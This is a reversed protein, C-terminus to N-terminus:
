MVAFMGFVGGCCRYLVDCEETVASCMVMVAVCVLVFVPLLYM